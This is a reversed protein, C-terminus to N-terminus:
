ADGGGDLGRRQNRDPIGRLSRAPSTRASPRQGLDDKVLPPALPLRVLPPPGRRAMALGRLSRAAVSVWTTVSGPSLRARFGRANNAMSASRQASLRGSSCEHSRNDCYPYWNGPVGPVSGSTLSEGM